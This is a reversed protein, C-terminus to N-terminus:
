ALIGLNKYHKYFKETAEKYAQIFHYRLHCLRRIIKLKSSKGAFAQGSVTVPEAVVLVLGAPVTLGARGIEAVAAAGALNILGFFFNALSYKLKFNYRTQM